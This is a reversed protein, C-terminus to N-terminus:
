ECMEKEEKEEEKTCYTERSVVILHDENNITRITLAMPYFGEGKINGHKNKGLDPAWIVELCNGDADFVGVKGNHIGTFYIVEGSFLANTEPNLVKSSKDM